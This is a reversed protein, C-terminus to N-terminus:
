EPIMSGDDIGGYGLDEFGEGGSVSGQLLAMDQIKIEEMEPVIYTKKM